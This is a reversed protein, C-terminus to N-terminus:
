KGEQSISNALRKDGLLDAVWAAGAELSQTSQVLTMMITLISYNCYTGLINM